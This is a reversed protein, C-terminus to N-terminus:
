RSQRRRAVLPLLLWVLAGSGSVGDTRCGCGEEEPDPPPDLGVEIDFDIRTENGAEDAVVVHFNWTGIPLDTVVFQPAATVQSQEPRGEDNLWAWMTYAQPHQDDFTDLIVEFNAPAQFYEGDEPQALELVPAQNDVYPPGFLYELLRKSNQRNADDCFMRNLEACSGEGPELDTNEVVADCEDRFFAPSNNGSPFMISGEFDIHDLGWSHAAEHLATTAGGNVWNNLEGDVHAFAIQNPLQDECDGSPASGLAGFDLEEGGYVVMTYDEDDDPRVATIRLGFDAADSRMAQLVGVRTQLSGSFEPFEVNFNYWSCDRHSDSPNCEDLTIGDFNVFLTASEGVARQRRPRASLLDANLPPQPPILADMRHQGPALALLLPLAPHM